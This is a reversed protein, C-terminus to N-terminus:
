DATLLGIFGGHAVSAPAKKSQPDIDRSFLGSYSNMQSFTQLANRGAVRNV